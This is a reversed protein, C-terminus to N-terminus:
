RGNVNIQGTSGAWSHNAPSGRASGSQDGTLLILLRQHIRRGGKGENPRARMNM